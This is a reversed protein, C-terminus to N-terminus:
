SEAATLAEHLQRVERDGTPAVLNPDYLAEGPTIDSVDYFDANVEDEFGFTGGELTVGGYLGGDAFSYTLVEGDDANPDVATKGVPGAVGSVNGGFEVEGALIRDVVSQTMLLLVMDEKKFGAQLGINGGGIKLFAPNGWTGDAQRVLILGDGGRGGIIFGGQALNTLVIIGQSERLLSAPIREDPDATVSELLETANGIEKIAAGLRDNAKAVTPAVMVIAAAGLTAVTTRLNM